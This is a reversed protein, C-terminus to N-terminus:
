KRKSSCETKIIDKSNNNNNNNNTNNRIRMNRFLKHHNKKLYECFEPDMGKYNDKKKDDSFLRSKIKGSKKVEENDIIKFKDVVDKYKKVLYQAYNSPMGCEDIKDVLQTSDVVVKHKEYSSTSLTDFVKTRNGKMVYNNSSITKASTSKNLLHSHRENSCTTRQKEMFSKTPRMLRSFNVNEIKPSKFVKITNLTSVPSVVRSSNMTNHNHVNYRTLSSDRKNNNHTTNITRVHFMKNTFTTNAKNNHKIETLEGTTTNYKHHNRIFKNGEKHIIPKIKSHKVKNTITQATTTTKLQENNIITFDIENSHVVTLSPQKSNLAMVLQKIDNSLNTINTEVVNMLTQSQSSSTDSSYLTHFLTVQQQLTKFLVEIFMEQQQTMTLEKRLMMQVRQYLECLMDCYNGSNVDSLAKVEQQETKEKEKITTSM